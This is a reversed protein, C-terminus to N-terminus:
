DMKHPRSHRCILAVVFVLSPLLASSIGCTLSLRTEFVARVSTRTKVRGTKLSQNASPYLFIHLQVATVTRVKYDLICNM